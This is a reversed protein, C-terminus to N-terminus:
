FSESGKLVVSPFVFFSPEFVDEFVMLICVGERGFRVGGNYWGGGCFGSVEEYSFGVM